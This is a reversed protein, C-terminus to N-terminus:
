GRTRVRGRRARHGIVTRERRAGPASAEGRVARAPRRGRRARRHPARVSDGDCAARTHTRAFRGAGGVVVDGRIWHTRDATATAARRALRGEHSRERREDADRRVATHARRASVLVRIGLADDFDEPRVVGVLVEQQM